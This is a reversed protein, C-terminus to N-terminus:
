DVAMKAKTPNKLASAMATFWGSQPAVDCIYLSNKNCM